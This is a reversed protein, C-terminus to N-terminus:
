GARSTSRAIAAAPAASASPSSRKAKPSIARCCSVGAHRRAKALVARLAPDDEIFARSRPDDGTLPRLSTSTTRIACSLARRLASRSGVAPRVQIRVRRVHGRAAGSTRRAFAAAIREKLAGHTLDTTDIVADARERLPALVRRDAAIAERLSGAQRSRIAGARKASAACSCTTPPMSFSCGRTTRHAHRRRDRRAPRGAGDDSRVDLAIAVDRVDRARACRDVAADLVAPPLHEICYFGLDEFSKM